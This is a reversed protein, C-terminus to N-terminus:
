APDRGNDIWVQVGPEIRDFLDIVDANAMLICGHSQPNGLRDERNTGHIYIYREHSDIGPGANFGPQLGKLWLIRSTILNIGIRPDSLDRLNRGTDTRSRFIAGSEAERGIKEVIAHLGLPTGLSGDQCSPENASTSVTWSAVERRGEEHFLFLKQQGILTAIVVKTPELALSRLAEQYRLM